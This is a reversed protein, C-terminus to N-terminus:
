SRGIIRTSGMEFTFTVSLYDDTWLKHRAGFLRLDSDLDISPPTPLPETSVFQAYHEKLVEITPAFNSVPVETRKSALDIHTVLFYLPFFKDLFRAMASLQIPVLLVFGEYATGLLELLEEPDSVIEFIRGPFREQLMGNLNAPDAQVLLARKPNRGVLLDGLGEATTPIELVFGPYNSNLVEFVVSAEGVGIVPISTEITITGDQAVL